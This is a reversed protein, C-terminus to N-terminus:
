SIISFKTLNGNQDFTVRLFPDWTFFLKLNGASAAIASLSNVMNSSVNKKADSGAPGTAVNVVAEVHDNEVVAAAVNTATAKSLVRQSQDFAAPNLDHAVCNNNDILTM